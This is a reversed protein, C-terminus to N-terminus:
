KKSPAFFMTLNRGELVPKKDIDGCESLADAFRELLAAGIDQHAMQRGKFKVMVKVKDGDALFRRAQNVKTNFDNSDIKCTLQIEKVNVKQQKKKNEKEKKDRDFCYKGYDMIRCVAPTATSVMLVLDLDKDYAMDLAQSLPIIGIQENDSGIVRVDTKESIGADHIIEENIFHEKANKQKIIASGERYFFLFHATSSKRRVCFEGM